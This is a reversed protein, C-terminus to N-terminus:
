AMDNQKMEFFDFYLIASSELSLTDTRSIAFTDSQVVPWNGDTSFGQETDTLDRASYIQKM